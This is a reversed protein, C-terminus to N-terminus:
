NGRKKGRLYAAVKLASERVNADVLENEAFREVAVALDGSGYRAIVQLAERHAKPTFFKDLHDAYRRAVYPQNEEAVGRQLGWHARGRISQDTDDLHDFLEDIVRRSKNKLTSLGFYVADRREAPREAVAILAREIEPTVATDWLGRLTGRRVNPDEDGLLRAFAAGAAGELTGDTYLKLLRGVHQRVVAAEDGAGKLVLGLDGPEVGTTHLAYLASRRIGAHESDMLDLVTRRFVSREVEVQRLQYLASLAYEVLIPEESDLADALDRLGKRRLAPDQVQMIAKLIATVQDRAKAQALRTAESATAAAEDEGQPVDPAEDPPGGPESSTPPSTATGELSPARPAGDRSRLATVEDELDHITREFTAREDQAPATDASGLWAVLWAANSALLLFLLVGTTRTM